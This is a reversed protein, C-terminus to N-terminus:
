ALAERANSSSWGSEGAIAPNGLDYFTVWWFQLHQGRREFNNPLSTLKIPQLPADFVLVRLTPAAV